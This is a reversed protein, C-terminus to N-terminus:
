QKVKEGFKYELYAILGALIWSNENGSLIYMAILVLFGIGISKLLKKWDIEM